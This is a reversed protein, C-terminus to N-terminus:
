SPLAAKSCIILDKSVTFDDLGITAGLKFSLTSLCDGRISVAMPDSARVFYVLVGKNLREIPRQAAFLKCMNGEFRRVKCDGLLASIDKEVVIMMLARM